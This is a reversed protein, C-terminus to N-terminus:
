GRVVNYLSLETLLSNPQGLYIFSLTCANPTTFCWAPAGHFDDCDPGPGCDGHHGDNNGGVDPDFPSSTHIYMIFTDGNQLFGITTTNIPVFIGFRNYLTSYSGSPVFSGCKGLHPANPGPGTSSGPFWTMQDLTGNVFVTGNCLFVLEVQSLPINAPSHASIIFQTSNMSSFDGTPPAGNCETNHVNKGTVGGTVNAFGGNWWATFNNGYHNGNEATIPGAPFAGAIGYNGGNEYYDDTVNTTSMTVQTNYNLWAPFWPLCDTPDGWVPNSTGSRISFSVSPAPAPTNIKFTM